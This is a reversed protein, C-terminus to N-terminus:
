RTNTTASCQLGLDRKCHRLAVLFCIDCDSWAHLKWPMYLYVFICIVRFYFEVFVAHVYLSRFVLRWVKACNTQLLSILSVRDETTSSRSKRCLSCSIRSSRAFAPSLYHMCARLRHFFTSILRPKLRCWLVSRFTMMQPPVLIAALHPLQLVPLLRRLAAHAPTRQRLPAAHELHHQLCPSLFRCV